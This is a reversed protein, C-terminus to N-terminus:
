RAAGTTAVTAPAVAAGNGIQLYARHGTFRMILGWALGGALIVAYATPFIWTLPHDPAVGLMTAYNSLCLVCVGILGGAAIVPAIVTSWLGGDGNGGSDNHRLHYVLIAVAALTLVLLVGVGGVTALYFMMQVLPDWGMVAYVMIVVFGIVTQTISAAVPAGTRLSTRALIRPLVGERGLAYFYRNTTNLFALLGAFVSTLFLLHGITGVMAGLPAAVTFLLEVSQARSQEVIHQPGIAVSMAWSALTYVLAMLALSGFIALPVTRNPRRSEESYVPAMEFGIYGTWAIALAAGAASAGVTFLGSPNLAAWSIQGGAPHILGAASAVVVFVLEGTLLVALVKGNFDVRRGGMVAAAAWAALACCWWAIRVGFHEDLLSAAVAGFMGYAGVQMTSYAALALLGAGVGVPRGLGRVSFTYLAGANIVKRAMNTYGFAFVALLVALLLFAVPTAVVGTVAWGTTVIGAVVLLPAASTLVFQAVGATGLRDAALTESVSGSHMGAGTNSTIIDL